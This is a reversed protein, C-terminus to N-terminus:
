QNLKNEFDLLIEDDYYPCAGQHSAVYASLITAKQLAEDIQKAKLKYALFTALFSDGCGVTDILNVKYASKIIYNDDNFYVVGAAGKTLIIDQINPFLMRINKLALLEDTNTFNLWSNILLLEEENLKLTHCYAILEIILSKDYYPTRLNVDFVNYRSTKLYRLLTNKTTESRCALSGYVFADSVNILDAVADNYPIHDWAVNPLITYSAKGERDIDVQVTSTDVNQLVSIYTDSINKLQIDHLIEHGLVDDGVASLLYSHVENKSLHYSVNFPAGGIVKGTPLMDWLVEGFCVVNKLTM